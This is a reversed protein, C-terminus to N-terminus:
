MRPRVRPGRRKETFTRKVTKLSNWIESSNDYYPVILPTFGSIHYLVNQRKLERSM